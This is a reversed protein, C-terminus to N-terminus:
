GPAPDKALAESAGEAPASPAGPPDETRGADAAAILEKASTETPVEAYLKMMSRAFERAQGFPPKELDDQAILEALKKLPELKQAERLKNITVWASSLLRRLAVLSEDYQALANMHEQSHQKFMGKWRNKQAELEYCAARYEDRQRRAQVLPEEVTPVPSVEGVPETWYPHGRRVPDNLPDIDDHDSPFPDVVVADNALKHLADAARRAIRKLM